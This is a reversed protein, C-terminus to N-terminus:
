LAMIPYHVSYYDKYFHFTLTSQATVLIVSMKVSLVPARLAGLHSSFELLVSRKIRHLTKIRLCLGYM